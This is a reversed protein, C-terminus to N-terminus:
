AYTEIARKLQAVQLLLQDRGSAVAAPVPAEPRAPQPAVIAVGKGPTGGSHLESAWEDMKGLLANLGEREPPSLAALIQSQPEVVAMAGMPRDCHELGNDGVGGNTGAAGKVVSGGQGQKPSRFLM